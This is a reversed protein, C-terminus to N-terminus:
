SVPTSSLWTLFRFSLVCILVCGDGSLASPHFVRTTALPTFPSMKSNVTLCFNMPWELMRGPEPNREM